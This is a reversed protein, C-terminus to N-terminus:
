KYWPAIIDLNELVYHHIAMIDAHSIDIIRGVGELQVGVPDETTAKLQAFSNAFGSDVVFDMLALYGLSEDLIYGKAMSAEPLAM